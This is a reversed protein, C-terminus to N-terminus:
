DLEPTTIVGDGPLQVSLESDLTGGGRGVCGGFGVLGRCDSVM